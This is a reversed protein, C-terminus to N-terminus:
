LLQNVIDESRRYDWKNDVGYTDELPGVYEQAPDIIFVKGEPTTYRAWAHGGAVQHDQNRDISIRGELKGEHILREVLYASLTAQTRCVGVGEQIYMNLAVKQYAKAIKNTAELDYKLTKSVESFVNNLMSTTRDVSAREKSAFLRNKLGKVVLKDTSVNNIGELVREYVENLEKPYKKDDIVLAEGDPGGVPYVGKNVPTDRAIIPRGQYEGHGWEETLGTDFVRHSRGTTHVFDEVDSTYSYDTSSNGVLEPASKVTTGNLSGLDEVSILGRENIRLKAHKRSITDMKSLGLAEGVGSHRGIEVEDNSDFEYTRLNYGDPTSERRVLVYPKEFLRKEGSGDIDYPGYNGESGRFGVDLLVLKAAANEGKFNTDLGIVGCIAFEDGGLRLREFPSINEPDHPRLTEESPPALPTPM